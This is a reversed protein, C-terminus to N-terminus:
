NRVFNKFPCIPRAKKAELFITGFDLVTKNLFNVDPTQFRRIIKRTESTRNGCVENTYIANNLWTESISNVNFRNQNLTLRLEDMM